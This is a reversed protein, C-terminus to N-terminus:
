LLDRREAGVWFSASPALTEVAAELHLSLPLLLQLTCVASTLSPQTNGTVDFQLITQQTQLLFSLSEGRRALFRNVHRCRLRLRFIWILLSIDPNILMHSRNPNIGLTHAHPNVPTPPDHASGPHRPRGISINAKTQIRKAPGSINPETPTWHGSGGGRELRPTPTPDSIQAM